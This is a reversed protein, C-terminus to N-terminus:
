YYDSESRLGRYVGRNQPSEQGREGGSFSGDGLFDRVPRSLSDGRSLVLVSDRYKTYFQPIYPFLQGIGLTIRENKFPYPAQIIVEDSNQSFYTYCILM